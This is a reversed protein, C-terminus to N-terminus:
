SAVQADDDKEDAYIDFVIKAHLNAIKAVLDASLEFGRNWGAMHFALRLQVEYLRALKQWVAEDDPLQGLLKAVLEEPGQPATGRVELFWGSRKYLPSRPGRREGRRHSSTPPRGLLGTVQEPDLDEGYVALCVGTEDVLGGVTCLVRPENEASPSVRVLLFAIAEDADFPLLTAGDEYQRFAAPLPRASRHLLFLLPRGTARNANWATELEIAMWTSSDYGETVVALFVDNSDIATRCGNEYWDKWRPDDGIAPNIPSTTVTHGAAKLLDIVRVVRADATNETSVFIGKTM